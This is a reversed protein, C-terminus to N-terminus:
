HVREVIMEEKEEEQLGGKKHKIREKMLRKRRIEERDKREGAKKGRWVEELKKGKEKNDRIYGKGNNGRGRNIKLKKERRREKKLKRWIVKKIKGKRQQETKRENTDVIERRQKDM